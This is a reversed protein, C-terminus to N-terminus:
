DDPFHFNFSWHFIVKYSNPHLNGFYCFSFCVVLWFFGVLRLIHLFQSQQVNNNPSYFTCGIHFITHLNMWFNLISIGCSQAIESILIQRLILILVNFFYYYELTWQLVIWLLPSTSVIKRDLFVCVSLSFSTYVNVPINSWTLFFSIRWPCFM